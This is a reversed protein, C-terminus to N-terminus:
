GTASRLAAAVAAAGRDAFLITYQNVDAVLVVRVAPVEARLADIWDLPYMGPPEGRLGAPARLLPTGAPLGALAPRLWDGGLDASDTAVAAPPTAAHLRPETGVLDYDVYDAVADNWDGAFAPHSRFFDRYAARDAFTMSLRALAPGLLAATREEDTLGPPGPPLPLGGDVLVLGAVRGPHRHHLAVAAFGGMSHGTVVASAVSLRDLVAAADDAHRAMGYPGPLGASRGRGRLDPAVLRVGPLRAAVALWCRHSATVGHLALVTVAGPDDPGWVGVRLDGGPVPVDLTRYAPTM